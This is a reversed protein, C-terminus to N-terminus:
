RSSSRYSKSTAASTTAYAAAITMGLAIALAGFTPTKLFWLWPDAQADMAHVFMSWSVEALPNGAPAPSIALHPHRTRAVAVFMCSAALFSAVGLPLAIRPAHMLRAFVVALIALLPFLMPFPATLLWPVAAVFTAAVFIDRTRGKLNFSVLLLAPIAIALQQVHIHLGGFVAFAPPVLAITADGYRPRLRIAITIGLVLMAVYWLNGVLLAAHAPVGLSALINATSFQARDTLNALAHAPLVDRLYEINRAPGLVVVSLVALAFTGLLLTV